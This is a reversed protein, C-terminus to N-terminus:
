VIDCHVDILGGSQLTPLAASRPVLHPITPSTSRRTPEHGAPQRTRRRRARYGAPCFIPRFEMSGTSLLTSAPGALPGPPKFASIFLPIPMRAISMRTKTPTRTPQITSCTQSSGFNPTGVHAEDAQETSCCSLLRPAPSSEGSPAPGCTSRCGYRGFQGRRILLFSPTGPLAPRAGSAGLTDWALQRRHLWPCCKTNRHSQSHWSVRQVRGKPPTKASRVSRIAAKTRQNCHRTM